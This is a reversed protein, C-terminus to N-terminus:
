DAYGDPTIIAPRGCEPCVPNAEPAEVAERCGPCEFVIVGRDEMAKSAADELQAVQGATRGSAMIKYRGNM